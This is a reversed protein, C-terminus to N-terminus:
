GLGAKRREANLELYADLKRCVEDTLARRTRGASRYRPPDLVGSAPLPADGVSLLQKHEDIYKQVTRRNIGLDRSLARASKGDSFHGIIIAQKERMDIM